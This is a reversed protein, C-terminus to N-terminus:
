ARCYRVVRSRHTTLALQDDRVTLLIRKRWPGDCATALLQGQGLPCLTAALPSPGPGLLLRDGDIMLESRWRAVAGAALPGAGARFRRVRHGIEGEVAAGNQHLRMPLHSTLSYAIGSRADHYLTEDADLWSVGQETVELWADGGEALYLGPSLSHGVPPLPQGLLAAMVRLADTQPAVDERNAVLAMGVRQVPDLLFHTKYGPHSGGHGLLHAEGWRVHALGLGYGTERGDALRRPASLRTLVAEADEGLLSQLWRALDRLSGAASGSASLPLGACATQWGERGRWYGPVLGPVIDFWTAPAHLRIGLPACIHRQLLDAFAIGKANLAEEVLRYGTNSYSIESGTPYNLAGCDTLFPLLDEQRTASFISLGLLSLTERVDPLGGTMDLAQGVSVQGNAGTLQPLHRALPDELALAAAAPGTVLAAFLHKTVSAFRVVSDPSFLTRQALDALGGCCFAHIANADFLAIAGGPEGDRQWDDVIAQAVATAQPWNMIM